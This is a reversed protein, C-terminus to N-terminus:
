DNLPVIVKINEEKVINAFKTDACVFIDEQECHFKFFSLQLSDLVRIGKTEGFESLFNLAQETVGPSFYLVEYRHATDYNFKEIILNLTELDVERMRYKRYISSYFEIRALESIMIKENGSYISLVKETGNENHYVKVLASTDFFYNM